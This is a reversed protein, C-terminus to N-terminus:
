FCDRQRGTNDYWFGGATGAYPATFNEPCYTHFYQRPAIFNAGTSDQLTPQQVLELNRQSDARGINNKDNHRYHRWAARSASHAHHSVHPRRDHTVGAYSPITACSFLLGSLLSFVFKGQVMDVERLGLSDFVVGTTKLCVSEM